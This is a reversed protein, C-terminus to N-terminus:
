RKPEVATGAVAGDTWIPMPDTGMCTGDRGAGIPTAGAAMDFGAMPDRGMAVETGAVAIGGTVAGWGEGNEGGGASM